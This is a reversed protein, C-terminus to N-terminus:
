GAFRNLPLGRVGPELALVAGALPERSLDAASLRHRASTVFLTSHDPGGFTPCTPNSVPLGIVEDLGGHEDYRRLEGGGFLCIWVGGEIDVCLGDPLGSQPDIEAFTRRNCIDGARSDFDFVDIRQTTSDVFYMRDGGPSWGLGNSLTTDPIVCEIPKGAVLRYLAATGGVRNKSMTGAWLRGESDCRCDNFRNDPKEDEVIALTEREGRADLVVIEHGVALLLGGSERPVVASVEGDVDITGTTRMPPRLALVRGGTIDVRLLHGTRDDWAPGEGLQDRELSVARLELRGSATTLPDHRSMWDAFRPSRPLM